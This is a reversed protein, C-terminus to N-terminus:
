WVPLLGLGGIPAGRTNVGWVSQGHELSAAVIDVGFSSEFGAAQPCVRDRWHGDWRSLLIARTASLLAASVRASALLQTHLTPASAGARADSSVAWDLM